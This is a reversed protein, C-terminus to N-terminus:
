VCTGRDGLLINQYQGFLPSEAAPVTALNPPRFFQVDGRGEGRGRGEGGRGEREREREWEEKGKGKGKM